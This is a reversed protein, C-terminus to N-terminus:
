WSEQFPHINHKLFERQLYEQKCHNSKV